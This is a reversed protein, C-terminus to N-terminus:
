DTSQSLIVTQLALEIDPRDARAAQDRNATLYPLTTDNVPLTGILQATLPGSFTPARELLGLLELSIMTRVCKECRSCNIESTTSFCVRLTELAVSHEALAAIKEHRSADAGDHVIRRSESGWLPDLASHSGRGSQMASYSHTAPIRFDTSGHSILAALASIVAGHTQTVWDAYTDLVHRVHYDVQVIPVGLREAVDSLHATIRDRVEPVDHHLDHLYVLGDIRPNRFFTYFSDVGGTFSQLQRRRRTVRPLRTPASVPIRKLDPTWTSHIDQIEVVSSLLSPSIPDSVVLPVGLRMAPFLAIPLWVDGFTRPRPLRVRSHFTLEHTEDGVRM